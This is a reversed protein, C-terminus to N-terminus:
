SVFTTNQHKGKYVSSEFYSLVVCESFVLM